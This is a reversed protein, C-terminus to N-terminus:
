MGVCSAEPSMRRKKMVKRNTDVLKGLTVKKVRGYKVIPLLNAM